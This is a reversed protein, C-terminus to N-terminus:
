EENLKDRLSQLSRKKPLQAFYLGLQVVV